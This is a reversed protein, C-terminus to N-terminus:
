CTNEQKGQPTGESLRTRVLEYAASSMKKEVKPKLVMASTNEMHHFGAATVTPVPM